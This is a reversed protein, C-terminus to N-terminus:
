KGPKRPLKQHQYYASKKYESLLYNLLVAIAAGVPIAFMLGVFGFLAGGVFLALLVWAPNLGVKNGVLKPVLFMNELLAGAIFILAVNMVPVWDSFQYLALLISIVFGIAYLVVPIFSFFGTIIGILLGHKLGVAWLAGGYFISFVAGIILQGRVFGSIRRDLEHFIGKLDDARSKPFLGSIFATIRDWDKLMYYTIIPMVILTTIFDLLVLTSNLLGAFTKSLIRMADPIHSAWDQQLTAFSEQLYPMNLGTIGDQAYHQLTVIYGPMDRILTIIERQLLPLLVAFIGILILIFPCLVLLSAKARKVGRRELRAALPALLYAFITGAIFPTLVNWTYYLTAGFAFFCFGWFIHSNKKNEM